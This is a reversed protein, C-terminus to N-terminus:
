GLAAGAVPLMVRAWEAYMAASPHLEDPAVFGPESAARRSIATVDVFRAGARAAEDRVVTNFLDIETAVRSRDRERAFPTVGWDPISLVIVRDAREGAFALARAILVRLNLRFEDVGRGRYQDNVGILLTVLDFFGALGATAIGATLEDTTWGTRAVITPPAMRVGRASLMEALRVPWRDDPEVAEGITYSDGLALLRSPSQQDTDPM